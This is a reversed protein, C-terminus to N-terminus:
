VNYRSSPPRLFQGSQTTSPPPSAIEHSLDERSMLPVLVSTKRRMGQDISMAASPSRDGDGLPHKEEQENLFQDWMTDVVETCILVGSHITIMRLVFIGDMKIYDRVFEDLEHRYNGKEFQVDALELRRAVFKKRQDFPLSQFIWSIISFFSVIALFTYWLWLIFFIKETFINIVLVCQVTHRQVHGLIRIQMDCYTVVPFNASERWGKGTMIDYLTGYGYYRQKNLELFRSLLYMQFLVNFLFLCKIGLYLYTLYSEYYRLNLFKFFKHHYPHKAGFRFRHRFISSLHAALGNINARRQAPVVNAKDNAFGMIDKLRIGSKDYLLRWILCPAYFMFAVIVLFFPVWQYYSVVSHDREVVEPLNDEQFPTFYTNRAWCYMETYDEWSSKYEAPLWCEIPRGGFMKLSILVATLLLFTTTYYYHLRDSIDDDAQPQLFSLTGVIEAFVMRPVGSTTAVRSGGGKPGGGSPIHQADM